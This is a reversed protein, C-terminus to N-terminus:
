SQEDVARAAAAIAEHLTQGTGRASRERTFMAKWPSDNFQLSSYTYGRARLREIAAQCEPCRAPESM